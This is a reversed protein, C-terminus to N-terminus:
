GKPDFKFQIERFKSFLSKDPPLPLPAAARVADEVSRKFL